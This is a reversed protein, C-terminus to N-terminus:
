SGFLRRCFITAMELASKGAAPRKTVPPPQSADWPLRMTVVIFRDDDPDAEIAFRVGRTKMNPLEVVPPPPSKKPMSLM